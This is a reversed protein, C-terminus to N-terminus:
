KPEFRIAPGIEPNGVGPVIGHEPDIGPLRGQLGEYYRLSSPPVLYDIDSTARRAGRAASGVVELPRGAQNVVSQIQQVESPTLDGLNPRPAPGVAGVARVAGRIIAPSEGAIPGLAALSPGIARSFAGPDNIADHAYGAIDKGAQQITQHYFDAIANTIASTSTTSTSINGFRQQNALAQQLQPDGAAAMANRDDIVSRPAVYQLNQELSARGSGLSPKPAFSPTPLSASQPDFESDPLIGQQRQLSLLRGLLGGSADFTQPDFYGDLLGM